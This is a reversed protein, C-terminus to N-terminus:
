SGSPPKKCTKKHRPWDDRQHQSCCYHTSKCRSCRLLGKGDSRTPQKCVKCSFIAKLQTSSGTVETVYEDFYALICGLTSVIYTETFETENKQVLFGDALCARFERSKLGEPTIEMMNHGNVPTRSYFVRPHTIRIGPSKIKQRVGDMLQAELKDWPLTSYLEM